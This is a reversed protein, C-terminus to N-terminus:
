GRNGADPDKWILWSKVDPPWLIPTETEVDTKGTFVWSQDGKPHVPQIETCDLPIELTKELVVTWFWWNVCLLISSLRLFSSIKGNTIIYLQLTNSLHFLDSPSLCIDYSKVWIYFVFLCFFVFALVCIWLVSCHNGSPFSSPSTFHIFPSLETTVLLFSVKGQSCPTTYVSTLNCHQVYSM